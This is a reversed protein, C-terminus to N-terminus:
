QTPITRGQYEVLLQGDPRELVEVRVGAYRPRERSPLLQLTRWRCKVTNDKAVRRRCRFCLARTVATGPEAPRYAIESQAAPVGIQEDFRPLYRHLIENAQRLKIIVQVPTHKRGAM